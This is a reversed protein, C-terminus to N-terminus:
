HVCKQCKRLLLLQRTQQAKAKSGFIMVMVVVLQVPSMELDM